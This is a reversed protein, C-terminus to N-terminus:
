LIKGSMSTAKNSILTQPHWLWRHNFASINQKGTVKYFHYQPDGEATTAVTSAEYVLENISVVEWTRAWKQPGLPCIWISSDSYSVGLHLMHQISASIMTKRCFTQVVVPTLCFCHLGHISHDSVLCPVNKDCRNNARLHYKCYLYRWWKPRLWALM